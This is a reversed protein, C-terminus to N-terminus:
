FPCLDKSEWNPNAYGYNRNYFELISRYSDVDATVASCGGSVTGGAQYTTWFVRAMQAVDQGAGSPYLQQLTDYALQAEQSREALLHTLVLRWRAFASLQAREEAATMMGSEGGWEKLADDNLVRRYADTAGAYDGSLLARDGDLLVHYRYVAPEYIMETRTFVTGNWTWIETHRRQPEAGVSGIGGSTAEIRMPEVTYSPYPLDLTGGMLNVLESGDWGLVRLREYCTHAGCTRLIYVVDPLGDQTLDAVRVLRTSPDFTESKGGGERYLRTYTGESCAFVLLAGPPAILQGQPDIVSVIVEDTGDGNVDAAVVQDQGESLANWERLRSRLTELSGGASLFAQIADPYGEFDTPRPFDPSAPAPCRASAPTPTASVATPTATETCTASPVFTATATEPPVTTAPIPTRTPSFM